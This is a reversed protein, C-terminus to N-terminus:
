AAILEAILGSLKENVASIKGGSFLFVALEIKVDAL